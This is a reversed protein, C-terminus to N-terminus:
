HRCSILKRLSREVTVFPLLSLDCIKHGGLTDNVLTELIERINELVPDISLLKRRVQDYIEILRMNFVNALIYIRLTLILTIRFWRSFVM